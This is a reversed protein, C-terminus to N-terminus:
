CSTGLWNGSWKYMEWLIVEIFTAMGTSVLVLTKVTHCKGKQPIPSWHILLAISLLKDIM